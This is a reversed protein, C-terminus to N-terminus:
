KTMSWGLKMGNFNKLLSSLTSINSGLKTLSTFLTSADFLMYLQNANITVTSTLKAVGLAGTMTLQNGNLQYTGNTTKGGITMAVNGNNDFTFKSIGAKLGIKELQTSLQKELSNAMLEGGIQGLANNSEFSVQPQAYTWTGVIAASTIKGNGLLSTLISLGGSLLSNGTNNNAAVNNNGALAGVLATGLLNATSNGNNANNTTGLGCSSMLLSASAIAAMLTTKKM